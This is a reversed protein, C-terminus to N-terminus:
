YFPGPGRAPISVRRSEGAEGRCKGREEGVRPDNGPAGQPLRRGRRQYALRARGYAVPVVGRRAMAFRVPALGVNDTADELVVASATTAVADGDGQVMIPHGYESPTRPVWKRHAPNEEVFGTGGCWKGYSACLPWVRGAFPGGATGRPLAHGRAGADRGGM